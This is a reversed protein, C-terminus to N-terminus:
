VRSFVIKALAVAAGKPDSVDLKGGSMSTFAITLGINGVRAGLISGQDSWKAADGIGPINPLGQGAAELAGFGEKFAPGTWVSVAMSVAGQEGFFQCYTQGKLAQGHEQNFLAISAMGTADQAEKDSLLTSCEYYQIGGGSSSTPSSAPSTAAPSSGTASPGSDKPASSTTGKSCAALAVLVMCIWGVRRNM